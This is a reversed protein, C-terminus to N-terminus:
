SLIKKKPAMVMPKPFEECGGWVMGHTLMRLPLGYYGVDHVLALELNRALVKESLWGKSLGSLLVSQPTLLHEADHKNLRSHLLVFYIKWFCGESMYGPCIEISLAALRPALHEVALAHEQQADSLDFDDSDEDDALPFDLWTELHMAINRAFILVENCGMWGRLKM